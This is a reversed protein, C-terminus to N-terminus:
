ARCNYLVACVGRPFLLSLKVISISILLAAAFVLLPPPPRVMGGAALAAGGGGRAGPARPWAVRPPPPSVACPSAVSALRRALHPSAHHARVRSLTEHANQRSPKARAHPTTANQTGREACFSTVRCTPNRTTTHVLPQPRVFPKSRTRRINPSGTQLNSCAALRNYNRVGPRSPTHWFGFRFLV